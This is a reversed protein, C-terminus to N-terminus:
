TIGLTRSLALRDHDKEARRNQETDEGRETEDHGGALEFPRDVSDLFSAM